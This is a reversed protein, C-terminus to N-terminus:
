RLTADFSVYLFLAFNFNVTTWFLNTYNEYFNHGSDQLRQKWWLREMFKRRNIELLQGQLSAWHIKRRTVDDIAKQLKIIKEALTLNPDSMVGEYNTFRENTRKSLLKEKVKRLKKERDITPKTEMTADIDM